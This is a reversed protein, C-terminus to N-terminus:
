NWPLKGVIWRGPDDGEGLGLEEAKGKLHLAADIRDVQDWPIRLVNEGLVEPGVLRRALRALRHGYVRRPYRGDGVLIATVTPPEGRIELDDVRGCRRGDVDVIQEDLIRYGLRVPGNM